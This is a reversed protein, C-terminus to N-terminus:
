EYYVRLGAICAEVQTILTTVQAVLFVEDRLHEGNPFKLMPARRFLGLRSEPAQFPIIDTKYM